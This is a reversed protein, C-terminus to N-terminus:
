EYIFFGIDVCELFFLVTYIYAKLIEIDNQKRRGRNKTTYYAWISSVVVFLCILAEM